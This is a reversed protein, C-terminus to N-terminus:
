QNLAAPWNADAQEIFTDRNALWKKQIGKSVNLYLKSNHIHWAKPSSKVVDGMAMAWACYGGYQPAYAEPDAEFLAKNAESAFYWVADKYKATFAKDGKVADGQEFYAVTDYGRLAVDGRGTFVEPKCAHAVNSVVALPLILFVALLWPLPRIHTM